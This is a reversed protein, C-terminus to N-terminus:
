QCAPFCVATDHDAYLLLGDPRAQSDLSVALGMEEEKLHM